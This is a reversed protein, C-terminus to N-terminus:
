TCNYTTQRKIGAANIEEVSVERKGAGRLKALRGKLTDLNCGLLEAGERYTIPNGGYLLTTGPKSSKEQRSRMDEVSIETIGEDRLEHLKKYFTHAGVGLIAAADLYSVEAGAHTVKTKRARLPPGVRMDRFKSYQGANNLLKGPYEGAMRMVLAREAENLDKRSAGPMERHVEFMWSEPPLQQLEPRLITETTRFIRKKIETRWTAWRTYLSQAQGVYLLGEDAAHLMYLGPGDPPSSLPYKM